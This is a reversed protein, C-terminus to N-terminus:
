RVVIVKRVTVHSGAFPPVTAGRLTAAICGGTRTGGFPAGQVNASTVRGSPAFTVIAEASGSPDDGKRCSSAASASAGLARKAADADFAPLAAPIPAPSEVASGASEAEAANSTPAVAPAPQAKPVNAIAPEHAPAAATAVRTVQKLTPEARSAAEDLDISRVAGATEPARTVPASRAARVGDNVARAAAPAPSQVSRTPERMLWLTGLVLGAAAVGLLVASVDRQAAPRQTAAVPRATPHEGQAPAPATAVLRRLSESRLSDPRSGKPRSIPPRAAHPRSSHPRSNPARSSKPRVSRPLADSHQQTRTPPRPPRPAPPIRSATGSVALSPPISSLRRPPKPPAKDKLRRAPQAPTNPETPLKTDSM